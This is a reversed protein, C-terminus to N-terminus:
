SAGHGRFDLAAVPRRASLESMTERWQEARGADAHLFVVPLQNGSGSHYIALPGRPGPITRTSMTPESSVPPRAVASTCATVVAVACVLAVHPARATHRAPHLPM